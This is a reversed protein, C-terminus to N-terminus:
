HLWRPPESWGGKRVPRLRSSRRGPFRELIGLWARLWLRQLGPDRMYVMILAIAMFNPVVSALGYFLGSLATIGINLYIIQRGSAPLLFNFMMQSHPYAIAWGIILAVITAWSEAYAQSNVSPWVLGVLCTGLGSLVTLGLYVALLRRAGWRYCLAGGFSLLCACAFVLGLPAMSFEFFAWTALRWVQGKWVLSPVLAGYELIPWGSRAGIAALITGGMTLAILIGVAVPIRAGLLNFSGDLTPARRM